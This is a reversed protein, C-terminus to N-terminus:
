TAPSGTRSNTSVQHRRRHEYRIPADRQLPRRAQCARPRSTAEGSVHTNTETSTTPPRHQHNHDRNDPHHQPRPYRRRGPRGIRSRPKRIDILRPRMTTRHLSQRGVTNQRARLASRLQEAGTVRKLAPHHRHPQNPHDVPAFRLPQLHGPERIHVRTLPPRRMHVTQGLQLDSRTASRLRQPEARGLSDGTSLHRGEQHTRETEGLSRRDPKHVGLSVRVGRIDIRQCLRTHRRATRRVREPVARAPIGGPSLHCREQVTSEPETRGPGGWRRLIFRLTPLEGRDRRTVPERAPDAVVPCDDAPPVVRATLGFGRLSLEARDRRPILMRTPQKGIPLNNTPSSVPVALCIGRGAVEAGHGGSMPMRAAYAAVPAHDAPSPVGIALCISRVALEYRHGGTIAVRAPNTAVPANDAPSPVGITLGVRGPALEASYRGPIPMRAPYTAVPRNGTPPSVPPTLGSRGPLFEARYGGPVQMRTPDPGIPGNGAPSQVM